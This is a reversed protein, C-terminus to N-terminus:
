RAQPQGAGFFRASLRNITTPEARESFPSRLEGAAKGAAPVSHVELDSDNLDNRVVKVKELLLEAQVPTRGAKLKAAPNPKSAAFYSLPNIKKMWEPFVSPKAVPVSLAPPPTNGVKALAATPPRIAHQTPAINASPLEMVPSAAKAMVNAAVPKSEKVPAVAVVPKVAPNLQADFLPSTEMAKSQGNAVSVTPAVTAAALADVMAPEAKAPIAFPNKASEFRPLLNQRRMRYPCDQDKMGILSRGTALLTTFSM